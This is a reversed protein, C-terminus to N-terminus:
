RHRSGHNYGTLHTRPWIANLLLDRPARDARVIEVSDSFTREPRASALRDGFERARRTVGRLDERRPTSPELRTKRDTM